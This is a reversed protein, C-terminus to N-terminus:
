LRFLYNFHSYKGEFTSCFQGGTQALTYTTDAIKWTVKFNKGGSVADLESTTLENYAITESYTSRRAGNIRSRTPRSAIGTSHRV